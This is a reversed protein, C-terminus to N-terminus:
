HKYKKANLIHQLHHECHWAYICLNEKLSVVENGNPHIFTRNLDLETLSELFFVWRQHIAKLLDINAKVDYTITDSLNAWKAEEYPRIVPNDETLALKFRIVSNLHSDVCHGVIQKINWGEPRYKYNLETKSLHIVENAVKKPFNKLTDIWNKISLNNEDYNPKGIPYKLKELNM